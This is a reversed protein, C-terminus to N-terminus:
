KVTKGNEMKGLRELAEATDGGWLAELNYKRRAEGTMLHVVVSIYDLVIWGAQGSGSERYVRLNYKERLAREIHGALAQLHTESNATAIVFYDSIATMGDLAIKITDEAMKADALEVVDDALQGAEPAKVKKGAEINEEAGGSVIKEADM